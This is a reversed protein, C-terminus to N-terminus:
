FSTGIEFKFTQTKDSEASSLEKAFVFNLPGIPTYMNTAFGLSSRIKSSQGVSADYDAHWLNAFDLFAAVDTQTAEPLLNPLAAEFNLAAAYNGGVFDGQDIPGIKRREFGRLRSSPIHLRKSIRVEDDLAWLGATYFKVAGLVDDSFSHYKNISFKNYLSSKDEQLLPIGQGFSIISGRTPMFSRDRSDKSIGYGFTLDTFNGEQRKLSKSADSGVALDDFELDLRPSLYIEDYQEFTTGIGFRTVTNEYGSDENDTKKSSVGFTLSNGSYNYNPNTVDLGGRISTESMDLTTEVRLGEGLYNNESLAFQFTTGDTGTGAAASLEGTPEPM